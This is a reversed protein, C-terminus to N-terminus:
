LMEKLRDIKMGTYDMVAQRSGATNLNSEVLGSEMSLLRELSWEIIFGLAIPRLDEIKRENFGSLLQIPPGSPTEPSEIFYALDFHSDGYACSEFDLLLARESQLIVNPVWLDGHMVTMSWAGLFEAYALLMEHIESFSQILLSLENSCTSFGQHNEILSHSTLIFDLPSYHSRLGPPKQDYMTKLCEKLHAIEQDSFDDLTNHTVGKIYEFIIFPTEDDDSLRGISLPSSTIGLKGFFDSTTHLYEYHSPQSTKSGPLKLVFDLESSRGRININSWGGV